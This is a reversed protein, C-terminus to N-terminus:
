LVVVLSVLSPVLPPVVPLNPLKPLKVMPSCRELSLIIALLSMSCSFLYCFLVLYPSMSTGLIPTKTSLLAIGYCSVKKVPAGPKLERVDPDTKDDGRLGEAGPAMDLPEQASAPAPIAGMLALALALAFPFKMM